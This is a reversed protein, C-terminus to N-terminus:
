LKRLQSLRELLSRRRYTGLFYCTQLRARHQHADRRPQHYHWFDESPSLARQLAQFGGTQYQQGLGRQSIGGECDPRLPSRVQRTGLNRYLLLRGIKTRIYEPDRKAIGTGRIRASAEIMQCIEEAYLSHSHDAQGIWLYPFRGLVDQLLPQANM